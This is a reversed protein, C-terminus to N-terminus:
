GNVELLMSPKLRWVEVLWTQGQYGRPGEAEMPMEFSRAVNLRHLAVAPCVGTPKALGKISPPQFTVM